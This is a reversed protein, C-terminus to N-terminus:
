HGLVGARRVGDVVDGVDRHRAHPRHRGINKEEGGVGGAHQGGQALEIFAVSHVVEQAAIRGLHRAGFHANHLGLGRKRGAEPRHEQRQVGGFVGLHQAL